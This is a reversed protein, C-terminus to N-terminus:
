KEELKKELEAVRAELKKIKVMLVFNGGQPKAVFEGPRGHRQGPGGLEGFSGRPRFSRQHKGREGRNGRHGWRKKRLEKMKDKQEPTFLKDMEERKSKWDEKSKAPQAFIVKLQDQQEATLDLKKALFEHHTGKRVSMTESTAAIASTCFVMVLLTVLVVITKKM